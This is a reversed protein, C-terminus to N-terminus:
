LYYLQMTCINFYSRQKEKLMYAEMSGGLMNVDDAYVLLQHTGNLKLGDQNVQVRRIADELACNFFLPSLADGQKFCNKIPFVDFLQKDVQVRSYNENLCMKILRILKIPIGFEILINYLVDRRVLDYAKKFETFLQQVVKNYEWKKKPIQRICFIHDTTSGKCRFGSQQDGTIEEAYPPLRSLLIHSLIKCTTPSLSVGRYNSCETKDGKKYM